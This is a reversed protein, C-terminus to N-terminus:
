LIYEGSPIFHLTPELFFFESSAMSNVISCFSPFSEEHFPYNQKKYNVDDILIFEFDDKGWLSDNTYGIDSLPSFITIADDRCNVHVPAEFARIHHSTAIAIATNKSFM